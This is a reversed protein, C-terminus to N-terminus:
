SANRENKFLIMILEAFGCIAIFGFSSEFCFKFASKSLGAKHEVLTSSAMLLFDDNNRLYSIMM